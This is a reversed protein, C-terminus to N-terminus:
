EPGPRDFQHWYSRYAQLWPTLHRQGGALSALEHMLRLFRAVASRQPPTLPEFQDLRYPRANVDDEQESPLELQYPLMSPTGLSKAHVTMAAPLYYRFGIPDLFSFGGLGPSPDWSPDAAVDRWHRDRDQSRAAAREATTGYRDIVLAESWSVGGGRGVSAFAIEIERVVADREIALWTPVNDNM